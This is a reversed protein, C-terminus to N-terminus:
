LLKGDTLLKDVVNIKFLSAKINAQTRSRHETPSFYNVQSRVRKTILFKRNSTTYMVWRLDMNNSEATTLIRTDGFYYDVPLSM